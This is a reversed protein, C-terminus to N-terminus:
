VKSIYSYAKARSRSKSDSRKEKQTANHSINLIDIGYKEIPGSYLEFKKNDAFATAIKDARENGAVGVHGSLLQWDIKKGVMVQALAEWIDRNLVETKTSTIWNKNQWGALWETAGRLVYSSDTYIIIQGSNQDAQGGVFVLGELVAQLEMRNNTTRAEAGGFETVKTGSGSETVIITGWGGPGPNGRSAGDTFIITKKM